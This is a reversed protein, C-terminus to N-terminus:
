ELHQGVPVTPMGHRVRGFVAALLFHVFHAGLVIGDLLHAASHQLLPRRVFFAQLLDIAFDARNHVLRGVVGNVIWLRIRSFEVGVDVLLRLNHFETVAAMGVCTSIGANDGVMSFPFRAFHSLFSPSATLDPSTIASISVSLAVMSTSAISWPVMPLIRTGSPAWSM